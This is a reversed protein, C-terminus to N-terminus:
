CLYFCCFVLHSSLTYAFFFQSDQDSDESSSSPPENFVHRSIAHQIARLLRYEHLVTCMM